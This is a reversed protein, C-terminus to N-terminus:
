GADLWQSYVAKNCIQQVVLRLKIYIPKIMFTIKKCISELFFAWKGMDSFNVKVLFSFAMGWLLIEGWFIVLHHNRSFAGFIILCKQLLVCPCTKMFANPRAILNRPIHHPQWKRPIHVQVRHDNVLGMIPSLSNWHYPDIALFIQIIQSRLFILGPNATSTDHLKM